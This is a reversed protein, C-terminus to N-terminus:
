PEIDFDTEAETLHLLKLVNSKPSKLRIKGTAPGVEEKAIYLLGLGVSDIHSVDALDFTLPRGKSGGLKDILAKFEKNSVFSLEGSLRVKIGSNDESVQYNM